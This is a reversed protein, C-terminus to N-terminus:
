KKNTYYIGYSAIAFVTVALVSYIYVAVNNGVEPLVGIQEKLTTLEDTNETDETNEEPEETDEELPESQLLRTAVYVEKGNYKIISWGNEAVGVRTVEQGANLYGVKESDTSWSARLNCSQKAYMTEEVKKFEPDAPKDKTLYQSSIYCTKGNYEVRSWGADGVGTRKLETDKDITAVKNGSTSPTERVNVREKTFVTENVDTFKETTTQNNNNNTSANPSVVNFSQSKNGNSELPNSNSDSIVVNSISVTGGGAVKANFTVSNPFDSMGQVYVIKGSTSTGDSFTVTVTAEAAYANSPLILAVNFNNNLNISSPCNIGAISDARVSTIFLTSNIILLVLILISIYMIKKM